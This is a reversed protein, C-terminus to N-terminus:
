NSLDEKLYKGRLRGVFKQVSKPIDKWNLVDLIDGAELNLQSVQAIHEM